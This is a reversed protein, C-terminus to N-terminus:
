IKNEFEYSAYLRKLYEENKSVFYYKNIYIYIFTYKHIKYRMM